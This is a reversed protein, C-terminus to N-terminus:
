TFDSLDIVPLIKEIDNLGMSLSLSPFLGILAQNEFQGKKTVMLGSELM